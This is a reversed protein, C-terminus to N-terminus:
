SIKICVRKAIGVKSKYNYTQEQLARRLVILVYVREKEKRREKGSDM